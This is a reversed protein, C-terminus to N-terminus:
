FNCLNNMHHHLSHQLQFVANVTNIQVYNKLARSQHQRPSSAFRTLDDNIFLQIKSFVCVLYSRTEFAFCVIFFMRCTEHKLGFFQVIGRRKVAFHKALRRRQLNFFIRYTARKLSFM